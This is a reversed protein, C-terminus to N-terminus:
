VTWRDSFLRLSVIATSRSRLTTTCAGAAAVSSAMWRITLEFRPQQWWAYVSQSQGLQFQLGELTRSWPTHTPVAAQEPSDQAIAPTSLQLPSIGQFLSLPCLLFLGYLAVLWVLGPRSFPVHPRGPEGFLRNMRQRLVSVGGEVASLMVRAARPPRAVQFEAVRLLAEAYCVPNAGGAIVLDDCCQEREISVQRSLWWVAPHYFLLSETVRQLLMVLHDLRRIHALEHTVIARLQEANLGTALSVPLLIMPKVFGVVVPGHVRACYALAPVRRLGMRSSQERLSNTLSAPLPLVQQRCLFVGGAMSFLLRGLMCMVGLYYVAAFFARYGSGGDAAITAAQKQVADWMRSTASENTSQGGAPLAQIVRRDGLRV